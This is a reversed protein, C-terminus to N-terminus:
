RQWLTRRYEGCLWAGILKLGVNNNIKTQAERTIEILRIFGATSLSACLKEATDPDIEPKASCYLAMGDRLLRVTLNLARAAVFRDALEYLARMLPMENPAIIGLVIRRALELADEDVEGTDELTFVSCRSRITELLSKSSDCTLIFLVDQVPEELTKLLANQSIVPLKSDCESLIYVKRQAQNPKVSADRIIFAMEDKNYIDTKGTGKAFYIDSHAHAAANICNKCSGCPKKVGSCVAWMALNDAFQARSAADGGEIIIAHPMRNLSEFAGIAKKLQENAM